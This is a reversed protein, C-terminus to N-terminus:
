RLKPITRRTAASGNRCSPLLSLAEAAGLAATPASPSAKVDDSEIALGESSKQNCGVLLLVCLIVSSGARVLFSTRDPSMMGGTGGLGQESTTWERRLGREAARAYYVRKTVVTNFSSAACANLRIYLNPARGYDGTLSEM